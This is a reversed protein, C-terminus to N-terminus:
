CGCTVSCVIRPSLNEDRTANEVLKQPCSVHRARRGVVQLAVDLRQEAGGARDQYRPLLPYYM